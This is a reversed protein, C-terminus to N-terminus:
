RDLHQWRWHINIAEHCYFKVQLAFMCRAYFPVYSTACKSDCVSAVGGACSDHPDGCCDATVAAAETAFEAPNCAGVANDQTRRHGGDGGAPASDGGGGGCFLCTADCKGAM